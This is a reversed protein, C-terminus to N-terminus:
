SRPSEPLLPPNSDGERFPRKDGLWSPGDWRRGWSAPTCLTRTRTGKILQALMGTRHLKEELGRATVFARFYQLTGTSPQFPTRGDLKALFLKKPRRPKRFCPFCRPVSLGHLYSAESSDQSCLQLQVNIADM